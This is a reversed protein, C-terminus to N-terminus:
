FRLKYPMKDIENLDWISYSECVIMDDYLDCQKHLELFEEMDFNRLKEEQIKDLEIDRNKADKIWCYPNFYQNHHNKHRIIAMLLKIDKHDTLTTKIHIDSRSKVYGDYGKFAIYYYNIPTKSETEKEKLVVILQKVMKKLQQEEMERKDRDIRSLM